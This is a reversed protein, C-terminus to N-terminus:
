LFARRFLSLRRLAGLTSARMAMSFCKPSLHAGEGDGRRDEDKDGDSLEGDGVPQVAPLLLPLGAVVV